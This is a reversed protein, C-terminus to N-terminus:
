SALPLQVVFTTGEGERTRISVKGGSVEVIRKVISLGLGTGPKSRTGSGRFFPEFVHLADSESMGTGNDAVRLEYSGSKPRGTLEVRPAVGDRRYKLANECLNWLVERLLGEDCSVRAPEVDVRVEADLDKARRRLDEEVAHAVARVDAVAGPSVTGARSLKLLDGILADMREVSRRLIGVAAGASPAEKAVTAAAMSVTGLPGRLDHAVRGAFADLEQNKQELEEADARLQREHRAVIRSTWMGLLVTAVVAILSLVLQVRTAGRQLKTISAETREAQRRNIDVLDNVDREIATFKPALDRVLDRAEDDRSARSLALAAAIPQEVSAVDRELRLRAEAEKPYTSLPDYARAARAYDAQAEDLEREIRAMAEPEKEFIHEDVLVRRREIDTGMRAVLRISALANDGLEAVDRASERALGYAAGEAVLWVLAIVAFALRLITSTGHKVTPNM